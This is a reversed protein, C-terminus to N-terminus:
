KENLNDMWNDRLYEIPKFDFKVASIKLLTSNLNKNSFKSPDFAVLNYGDSVSSNFMIGDFGLQRIIDTIFQTVLYNEKEEPLIPISLEDSLDRLLKFSELLKEDDFYKTLDILRLDAVHLKETNKFESVSVYHGPHPRVEGIATEKTSAM